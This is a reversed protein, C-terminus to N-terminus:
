DHLAGIAISALERLLKREMADAYDAFGIAVEVFAGPGRVVATQYYQSLEKVDAAREDDGGIADGAIVLGNVTIDQQDPRLKVTHPRPGTNAPGDGSIDLTRKWCTLQQDLLNGGFLLAAGIATTATAPTRAHGRITAVVAALDDPTALPAWHLILSQDDPGSWEFVSLNVPASGAAFLVEQVAPRMLATALGDRQLIYEDSDVSGSVDLGLALAQRCEADASGALGILLPLIRKM